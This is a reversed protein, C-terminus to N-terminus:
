THRTCAKEFNHYIVASTAFAGLSYLVNEVASVLQTFPPTPVKGLLESLPLADIGTFLWFQFNEISAPEFGVIFDLREIELEFMGCICFSLKILLIGIAIPLEPQTIQRFVIRSQNFEAQSAGIYNLHVAAVDYEPRAGGKTSITIIAVEAHINAFGNMYNAINQLADPPSSLDYVAYIKRPDEGQMM